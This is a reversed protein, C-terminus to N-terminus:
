FEEWEEDSDVFSGNSGSSFGSSTSGSDFSSSSPLRAAPAQQMPASSFGGGGNESIAFFSLLQSMARAQEAMSEGAASAEEVLAANQQTMEDMQAIAKNVELIGSSQEQSAVSIDAIMKSVKEVAEVIEKLTEGSQNVAMTGDEVKTVSDRILDKIEKAAAASRQALNRVEGAVVAFGRGQEGARAAEVAANLALLNTQFAIEDIVGIIDAIKNSAENIEAMGSVARAVIEGGQQARDKADSALENAVKSNEANQQVTATMEEMSSATEELSSAQEETRQSLDTNGQAIEDAGSAVMTASSSIRAIVDTLKDATANADRKLKDFVGEYDAEIRKTLNGHALADFMIATEDIVGQAIGVLQNLGNALISFFGEKGEEDIRATLDGSGAQAILDAVEKEVAVESTRDLWEVVTGIRNGENTIIPNATLQFTRGGISIETQYAKTLQNLLTRQHAPNKHFTDINQNLLNNASFNPLDKRMDAEANQMLHQLAENTYIINYQDDAIMASTSVNDLAQRVRMNEDAIRKEEISRALEETIEDWEIVTGLRENEASFVPTVTIDFTLGSIEMRSEASQKLENLKVHEQAKNDYFIAADMGILEQANFQPVQQRIKAENAQMMNILADNYYIIEHDPNALMVNTQCVDLAQKIRSNVKNLRESEEIQEKLGIRMQDVSELAKGLEDATKIKVETDFNGKSIDAFTENLMNLSEITTKIVYVSFAIALVM